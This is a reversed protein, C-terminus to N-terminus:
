RRRNKALSFDDGGRGPSRKEALGPAIRESASKPWIREGGNGVPLKSEDTAPCDDTDAPGLTHLWTDIDPGIVIAGDFALLAGM